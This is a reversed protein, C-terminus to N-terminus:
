EPKPPPPLLALLRAATERDAVFYGGGYQAEIRVAIREDHLQFFRAIMGPESMRFAAEFGMHFPDREPEPAITPQEVHFMDKAEDRTLLDYEKKVRQM